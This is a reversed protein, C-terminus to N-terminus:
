LRIENVKEGNKGTEFVFIDEWFLRFTNRPSFLVVFLLFLFVDEVVVEIRFEGMAM